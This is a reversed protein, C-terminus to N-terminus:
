DNKIRAGRLRQFPYLVRNYESLDANHVVKILVGNIYDKDTQYKEPLIKIKAQIVQQNKVLGLSSRASNLTVYLRITNYYPYRVMKYSDDLYIVPIGNDKSMDVITGTIYGIRGSYSDWANFVNSNLDSTIKVDIVNFEVISTDSKSIINNIENETINNKKNINMLVYISSFIIILSFFSIIVFKIVRM